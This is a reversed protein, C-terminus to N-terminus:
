IRVLAVDHTFYPISMWVAVVSLLRPFLLLLLILLLLLLLFLLLLLLLLLLPLSSHICRSRQAAMIIVLYGM